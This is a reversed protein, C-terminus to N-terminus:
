RCTPLTPSRFMELFRLEDGTNEVYHGMAFPVYGVDGAQYDFTRAKGQRRVRDYSCQGSIHTSGSTRTRTGTCKVCGGPEVMSWRRQSREERGPFQDFRCHTGSRVRRSRSKRRSGIPTAARADLGRAVRSADAQGADPCKATPLHVLSNEVNKGAARDFASTRRRLEQGVGDRPTHAFWDSILFTENESFQGDDFM